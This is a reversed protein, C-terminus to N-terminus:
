ESPSGPTDTALSAVSVPKVLAFVLADRGKPGTGVSTLLHQLQGRQEPPLQDWISKWLLVYARANPGSPAGFGDHLPMIHRRAYFVAGYDFATALAASPFRVSFEDVGGFALSSIGALWHFLPPKSPLDHGNRMPLVWEGGHVEEWVQVAERPEGKTYFPVRGLGGM